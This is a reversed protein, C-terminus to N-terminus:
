YKNKLFSYSNTIIPILYVLFAYDQIFSYLFLAILVYGMMILYAITCPIIGIKEFNYITTNYKKISDLNKHVWLTGYQIKKKINNKASIKEKTKIRFYNMFIFESIGGLAFFILSVIFFKIEGSLMIMFTGVILLFQLTRGIIQEKKM